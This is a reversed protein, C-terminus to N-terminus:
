QNFPLYGIDRREGLLLAFRDMAVINAGSRVEKLSAGTETELVTIRNPSRDSLIVATRTIAVSAKSTVRRTWLAKPKGLAFVSMSQGDASRVAAHIGNTAMVKEGAEAILVERGDAADLLVERGDPRVAVVANGGAVPERRQECGAGSLTRMQYGDRRWVEMGTAGERGILTLRCVGDRQEAISYVIRGGLITVSTDRDPEVVPLVRGDTTDVIHIRNDIPFGLLKPMMVPESRPEIRDAGMSAGMALKPNDAFLVFGIGPLGARWIVDGSAPEQATLECDKPTGCTVDLLANSFSWVALARTDRRLVMGTAADRVEFGKKLLMGSVVVTREPPGAVTAWDSKTQWIRRGSSRSRVEVSERQEVVVFRDLLTLSKPVGGLREQWPLAPDALPQSTTLWAAIGPFPNWLGTTVLLTLVAVVAM